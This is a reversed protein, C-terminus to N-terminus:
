LIAKLKSVQRRHIIRTTRHVQRDTMIGTLRKKYKQSQYEAVKDYKWSPIHFIYSSWNRLFMHVRLNMFSSWIIHKITLLVIQSIFYTGIDLLQIQVGYIM